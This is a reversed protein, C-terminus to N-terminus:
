EKEIIKLTKAFIELVEEIEEETIVLPPIWRMTAGTSLSSHAGYKMMVEQVRHVCEPSELDIGIMLGYARFGKMLPSNIKCLGKQFLSSNIATKVPLNLAKMQKTAIFASTMAMPNGGFTSGDYGPKMAQSIEPKTVVATVPFGGGFSKGIVMLDPVIGLVHSAFWMGEGTSVRAFGTQVEDVILLAEYQDCLTRIEHAFQPTAGRVGAEEGQVLEMIVIKAKGAKLLSKVANTDGYPAFHVWGVNDLGFPKRYALNCTVAVAAHTRGHFGGEFAIVGTQNTFAKAIKLAKDVAEGGSNQWYFCQLDGPFLHGIEKLFRARAVQIRDEKQSILLSAQNYLGKAIEANANGLNTTSYNSDLDIYSKGKSDFVKAGEGKVPLLDDELKSVPIKFKKHLAIVERTSLESENFLRALKKVEDPSFAETLVTAVKIAASAPMAGFPGIEVGAEEYCKSILAEARFKEDIVIGIVEEVRSLTMGTREPHESEDLLMADLLDQYVPKQPTVEDIVQQDMFNNNYQKM